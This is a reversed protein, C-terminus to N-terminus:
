YLIFQSSDMILYSTIKGLLLLYKSPVYLKPFWDNPDILGFKHNWARSTKIGCKGLDCQIVNWGQRVLGRLYAPTAGVISVAVSKVEVAGGLGRIGGAFQGPWSLIMFKINSIHQSVEPIDVVLRGLGAPHLVAQALRLGLKIVGLGPEGHPDPGPSFKDPWRVKIVLELNCLKLCKWKPSIRSLHTADRISSGISTLQM